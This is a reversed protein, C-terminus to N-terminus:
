IKMYTNIISDLYNDWSVEKEIIISLNKKYVDSKLCNYQSKILLAIKRIEFENNYNELWFGVNYKKILDKLDSTISSLVPAGCRIYEYFKVPFAVRNVDNDQRILLGLDGVLLHKNILYHPISRIIYDDKELGSCAFLQTAYKIDGTFMIFISNKIVDKFIKFIKIMEVPLQWENLSGSYLLVFRDNVGYNNRIKRREDPDYKFKDTDLCCPIVNIKDARDTRSKIYERFANSVCFMYDSNKHSYVEIKEIRKFPIDSSKIKYKYLIEKSGIGRCDCIVKINKFFVKKLALLFYSVIENRCHFLAIESKKFRVVFFLIFFCILENIFISFKFLFPFKYFYPFKFTFVCNGDLFEGIYRKRHIYEKKFLDGISGFIILTVSKGDPNLRSNIKKLFIM